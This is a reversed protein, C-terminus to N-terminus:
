WAHPIFFGLANNRRTLSLTLMETRVAPEITRWTDARYPRCIIGEPALAWAM